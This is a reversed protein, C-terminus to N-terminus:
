TMFFRDYGDQTMVMRHSYLNRPPVDSAVVEDDIMTDNNIPSTLHGSKKWNVEARHFYQESGCKLGEQVIWPHYSLQEEQGVM